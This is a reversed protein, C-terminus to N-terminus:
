RACRPTWTKSDTTSRCRRSGCCTRAAALGRRRRGSAVAGRIGHRAAAASRIAARGARRAAGSGRADPSARARRARSRAARALCGTLGVSKRRLRALGADAFLALSAALPALSFIPPNSLQWGDAGRSRRSTPSWRSAGACTTAGGARSDRCVSPAGRREHVFCGGVAGPGANLYKYSCWVAFDVDSTCRSRCTASRTPSISASRAATVGRGPAHDGGVDLREGSLYQVGPLLVLAIRTARASSCRTSGSATSSSRAESATWARAVRRAPRARPLAAAIARRLSRLPVRRARDPDQLPAQTPRFFSVLMLHLNVTLTNM